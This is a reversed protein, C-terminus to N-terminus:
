RTNSRRTSNLSWSTADCQSWWCSCATTTQHLTRWRLCWDGDMSAGRTSCSRTSASDNSTRCSRCRWRRYIITYWPQCQPNTIACHVRPMTTTKYKTPHHTQSHTSLPSEIPQCWTITAMGDWNPMYYTSTTRQSGSHAFTSIASYLTKRTSKLKYIKSPNILRPHSLSGVESSYHASTNAPCWIRSTTWKAATKSTPRCACM